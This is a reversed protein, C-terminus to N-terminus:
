VVKIAMDELTNAAVHIRKAVEKLQMLVDKCRIITVCDNQQLLQASVKACTSIVQDYLELIQDINSSILTLNQTPLQGIGNELLNSMDLMKEAIAQYDDLSQLKYESVELHFHKVSLAIWDLQTIIRFISEKDYPTILVDLLKKMNQTKLDRATAVDEIIPNLMSIDNEFCAKQIHSVIRRTIGAQRLIAANFDVEKPLIYKHIFNM